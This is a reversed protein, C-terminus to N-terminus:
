GIDELLREIGLAEVSAPWLAASAWVAPGTGKARELLPGGPGVM